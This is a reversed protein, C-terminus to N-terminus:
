TICSQILVALQILYVVSMNYQGEANIKDVEADTLHIQYLKFKTM